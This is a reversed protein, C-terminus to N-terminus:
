PEFNALVERQKEDAIYGVLFDVWDNSYTYSKYPPHYVCFKKNTAAADSAGAKPRAKCM